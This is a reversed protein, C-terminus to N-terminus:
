KKRKWEEIKFVNDKNLKIKNRVIKIVLRGDRDYFDTSLYLRKGLADVKIIPKDNITLINPCGVFRNSGFIFVQNGSYNYLPQNFFTKYFWSIIKWILEISLFNSIISIDFFYM